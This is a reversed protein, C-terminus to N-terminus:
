GVVRAATSDLLVGRMPVSRSVHGHARQLVEIRQPVDRRVARERAGRLVLDVGLVRLMQDPTPDLQHGFPGVHRARQLRRLREELGADEVARRLRGIGAPHRGRPELHRLVAHPERPRPFLDVIAQALDHDGDMAVAELRRLAESRGAIQHIAPVDGPEELDGVGHHVLAEDLPGLRTATVGSMLLGNWANWSRIGYRTWSM